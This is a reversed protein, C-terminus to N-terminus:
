SNDILGEERYTKREYPRGEEVVELPFVGEAVYTSASTSVKDEIKVGKWFDEFDEPFAPVKKILRASTVSCILIAWDYDRLYTEAWVRAEELSGFLFVKGIKPKALEKLKYEISFKQYRWMLASLFKGNIKAVVKFFLKGKERM